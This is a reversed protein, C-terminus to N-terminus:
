RRVEEIRFARYFWARDQRWLPEAESTLPVLASALKAPRSREVLLNWYALRGGQRLRSALLGFLRDAEAESLYEFVDSLNAKSFAHRPRGQLFPELEDTVIEIRDVLERLRGFEERRLYLPVRVADLYGGTVFRHVYFNDRLPLHTCVRRFRRLFAAGVGSVPAHKFQAPDRGHAAMNERGFYWAFREQFAPTFAESEFIAAQEGLSDCEFLREILSPSWLESLHERQFVQFYRDLRGSRFVGETLAQAQSDWFKQDQPMLEPRLRAYIALADGPEVGMLVRFDRHELQTIGAVKLRLLATQAPNIDVATLTRPEDLLIALVNTGASTISLVDDGPGIKLGRSVLRHDEWVASYRIADWRMTRGVESGVSQEGENM